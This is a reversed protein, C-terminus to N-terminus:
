WYGSVQLVPGNFRTNLDGRWRSERIAGDIEFYQYALGVGVHDTVSFNAGVAINWIGGSFDGINASFWDVRSSLLWRETPSYRYWAGINPVPLSASVPSRRFETSADDLTAVGSIEAGAEILHVGALLKLSHPGDDFYRRSFVLRTIAVKSKATIDVGAEYAAGEWDITEQLIKRASRSSSFRQLGLGWKEGFEWGFEAIFLDPSDDLGVASEFDASQTVGNVSGDASAKFDRAAFFGGIKASYKSTMIPHLDDACVVSSGLSCLAALLGSLSRMPLVPRM